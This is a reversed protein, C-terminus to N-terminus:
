QKNYIVRVNDLRVWQTGDSELFARFMFQNSIPFNAIHENVVSAVNYDTPGLAQVWSSGNWFLWTAGNNNSLQYYIEGGNKEAMETFSSFSTIESIATSNTPRINPRDTAYGALPNGSMDTQRFYDCALWGDAANSNDTARIYVLLGPWLSVDWIVEQWDNSSPVVAELLQTNDSARHLTVRNATGGFGKILFRIQQGASSFNSSKIIGLAQPNSQTSASYVGHGPNVNTVEWVTGSEETWSTLDGSEFDGNLIVDGSLLKLQAFGGTVEIKNHDYTYDTSFTFPWNIIGIRWNTIYTQLIEDKSGGREPWSIRVEVRRSDPDISAQPDGDPAIAGENPHGPNYRWVNYIFIRRNFIGLVQGADDQVLSWTPPAGSYVPYYAKGIQYGAFTPWDNDKINIVAELAEQAYSTAQLKHEGILNVKLSYSLLAIIGSILILSLALAVLIEILTFGDKPKLNQSKLKSIM